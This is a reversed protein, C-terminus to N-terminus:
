RGRTQGVRVLRAVALVSAALGLGAVGVMLVALVLSALAVLQRSGM